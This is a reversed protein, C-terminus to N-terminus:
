DSDDYKTIPTISNFITEENMIQKETENEVLFVNQKSLFDSAANKGFYTRTAIERNKAKKEQSNQSFSSRLSSNESEDKSEELIDNSQSILM